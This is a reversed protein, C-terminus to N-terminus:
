RTDALIGRTLSHCTAHPAYDMGIKWLPEMSELLGAPIRPDCKADVLTEHMAQALRELVAQPRAVGCLEEGFRLLEEKTPYAKGHHRGAFLKLAMTRDTQEADGVFRTYTYAATTVVDFVPSLRPAETVSLLVGFNKLHADGNRVMVSLAVQEFFKRLDEPPLRLQRLLEAIRQYSGQYKREALADRARLSMLSAIDEFGWRELRGGEHLCLDFRDVLLMHGDHSLEFNPTEVGARRAASLCLFENAVLGPYAPPAVKVIVTPVSVGARDSLMIKPQVGSIGLGTELQSEVLEDFRSQSYAMSLIAEREIPRPAPGSPSHPVAYSLHGIGNNQIMALLHMPQLQRSSYRESLRLLLDGEPLHQDMAAFLTGDEWVLADRSPMALAVHRQVAASEYRFKYTSAKLLRGVTTGNISVLLESTKDPGSDM